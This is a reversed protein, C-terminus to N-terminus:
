KWADFDGELPLVEYYLIGEQAKQQVKDEYKEFNYLLYTHLPTPENPIDLPVVFDGSEGAPLTFRQEIEADSLQLSSYSDSYNRADLLGVIMAGVNTATETTNVAHVHLDYRVIMQPHDSVGKEVSQIELQVGKHELNLPLSLLHVELKHPQNQNVDHVRITFFIGFSILLAIAIISGVKKM